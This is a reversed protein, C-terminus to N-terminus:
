KLISTGDYTEKGINKNKPYNWKYIERIKDASLRLGKEIYKVASNIFSGKAVYLVKVFYLTSHM